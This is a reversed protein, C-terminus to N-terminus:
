EMAAAYGAVEVRKAVFEALGKGVIEHSAAM